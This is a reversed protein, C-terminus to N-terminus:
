ENTTDTYPPQEYGSHDSLSEAAARRSRTLHATSRRGNDADRQRRLNRIDNATPATMSDSTPSGATPNIPAHPRQTSGSDSGGGSRWGGDTIARSARSRIDTATPIPSRGVAERARRTPEIDPGHTDYTDRATAGAGVTAGAAAAAATTVSPPSRLLSISIIFPFVLAVALLGMSILVGVAGGFGFNWNLVFGVRMLFAVPIVMVLVGIYQWWGMSGLHRLKKAPAFFILLFLGALIPKAISALVAYRIAYVFALALIEGAGFAHLALVGLAPGLSAKFLGEMSTTLEEPSPAFYMGLADTMHHLFRGIEPVFAIAIAGVLSRLLWKSQQYRTFIGLWPLIGAYLAFGAIALAISPAMVMPLLEEQITIAPESTPQGFVNWEGTTEDTPTGVIVELSVGLFWRAMNALHELLWNILPDLVDTPLDFQFAGGFAGDGDDTTTTNAAYSVTTTTTATENPAATTPAEQASAIPAAVGGLLLAVIGLILGGRFLRRQRRRNM